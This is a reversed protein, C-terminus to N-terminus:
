VNMYGERKTQNVNYITRIESDTLRTPDIGIYVRVWERMEGITM